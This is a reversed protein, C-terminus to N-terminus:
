DKELHKLLIKRFDQTEFIKYSHFFPKYKKYCSYFQQWVFDDKLHADWGDTLHMFFDLIVLTDKSIDGQYVMTLLEPTDNNTSKIKSKIDGIKELDAKFRNTRNSQELVWDQYKTKTEPLIVDRIWSEPKNYFHVMLAYVLDTETQYQRGLKVFAYKDPRVDFSEFSTRSKGQYKFYDYTKSNFHLRVAQLIGFADYGSIMQHSGEFM